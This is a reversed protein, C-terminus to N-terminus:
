RREVDETPVSFAAPKTLLQALADTVATASDEVLLDAFSPKRRPGRGRRVCVIAVDADLQEQLSRFTIGSSFYAGYTVVADIHLTNAVALAASLSHTTLVRFGANKLVQTLEYAHSIFEDVCLITAFPSTQTSPELPQM